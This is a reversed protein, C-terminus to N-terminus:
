CPPLRMDVDAESLLKIASRAPSGRAIGTTEPRCRPARFRLFLKRDRFPNRRRVFIPEAARSPSRM